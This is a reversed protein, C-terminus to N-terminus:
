VWQELIFVQDLVSMLMRDCASCICLYQLIHTQIVVIVYQRSKSLSFHFNFYLLLFCLCFFSSVIYYGPPNQSSCDLKM